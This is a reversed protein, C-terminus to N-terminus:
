MEAETVEAETADAVTVDEETVDAETVMPVDLLADPFEMTGTMTGTMTPRTSSQLFTLVAKTARELPQQTTTHNM